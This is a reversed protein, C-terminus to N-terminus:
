NFFALKEVFFVAEHFKVRLFLCAVAVLYEM